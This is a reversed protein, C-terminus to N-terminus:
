HNNQWRQREVEERLERYVRRCSQLSGVVSEPLGVMQELRALAQDIEILCGVDEVNSPRLTQIRSLAELLVIGLDGLEDVTQRSCEDMSPSVIGREVLRCVEAMEAIGVKLAWFSEILYTAVCHEGVDDFEVADLDWQTEDLSEDNTTFIRFRKHNGVRVCLIELIGQYTKSQRTAVIRPKNPFM